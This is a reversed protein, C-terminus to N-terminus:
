NANVKNDLLLQVIDAHGRGIALSISGRYANFIGGAVELNGDVKITAYDLNVEAGESIDIWGGVVMTGPLDYNANAGKDLLLQVIDAHGRGIALSISGRYANFKGGYLDLTGDVKITAYDLNVEAGKFICIWGGVVMTGPLDYNANVENDLLLQVIDAHGRGIALSISGRYANFIGGTVYLNRDVKITAYDLNVEAGDSLYIRDGVVMTGPLDYNANVENDLLLQVIDAHGRGIALSISGRYANFIGGAVELNGDVKITAYDLNVEAGDSIDPLDYNANVKNDLLLQVIDAHGRRIALSI